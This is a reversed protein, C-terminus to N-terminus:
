QRYLEIRPFVWLKIWSEGKCPAGGNKPTPNNCSRTRCLCNDVNSSELRNDDSHQACKFWESWSGFGGDIPSSLISCENAKQIWFRKLPDGDPPPTCAQQLDNWGCYPDMSLLCNDKSSHRACHQASVRIISHTTGIYLSETHKLFHIGLIKSNQDIKPQWIEIVCTERTRPLITLKKILNQDTAVFMIQVKNHLKTPTTDLAIHSIKELKSVFLPHTTVPQVAEDMFQYLQSSTWIDQRISSM